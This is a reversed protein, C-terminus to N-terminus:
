LSNRYFVIHELLNNIHDEVKEVFILPEENEVAMVIVIQDIGVGVHEEYM